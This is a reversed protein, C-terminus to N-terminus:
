RPHRRGRHGARKPNRVIADEIESPALRFGSSKIMDDERAQFFIFGDKDMMVADGMM